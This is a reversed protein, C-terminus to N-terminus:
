QVSCMDTYYVTLFSDSVKAQPLVVANRLNVEARSCQTMPRFAGLANCVLAARNHCFDYDRNNQDINYDRNNLGIILPGYSM